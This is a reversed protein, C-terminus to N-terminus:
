GTIRDPKSGILGEASVEAQHLNSLSTRIFRMNYCYAGVPRASRCNVRPGTGTEYCFISATHVEDIEIKDPAPVDFFVLEPIKNM